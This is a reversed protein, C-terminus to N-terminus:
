SYKSGRALSNRYGKAIGRDKWKQAVVLRCETEISKGIRSMKYLLFWATHLRKHRAEKGLFLFKFTRGLQQICM